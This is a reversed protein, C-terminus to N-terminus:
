ILAKAEPESLMFAVGEVHAHQEDEHGSYAKQQGTALTVNHEMGGAKVSLLGRYTTSACRTQWKPPGEEMTRVNWTGIRTRGKMTLLPTPKKSERPIEGSSTMCSESSAEEPTLSATTTFM